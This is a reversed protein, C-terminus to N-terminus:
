SIEFSIELIPLYRPAFIHWFPLLALKAALRQEGLGQVQLWLSQGALHKEGLTFKAGLMSTPSGM